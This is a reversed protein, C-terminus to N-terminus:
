GGSNIELVEENINRDKKLWRKIEKEHEEEYGLTTSLFEKNIVSPFNKKGIYDLLSSWRYKKLFEWDTPTSGGCTKIKLPNLHIYFPLYRLHEDREVLVAKYGGQFLSGVRKYKKNFSMTYGTGLKQMFKSIGDDKKQILLLHFHNPMLVFALIDVLKERKNEKRSYRAIERFSDTQTKNKVKDMVSSVDNFEFLDHIFQLRDYDDVFIDRKEVGRNYAHYIYNNLFQPNKM